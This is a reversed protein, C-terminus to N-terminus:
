TNLKPKLQKIQEAQNNPRNNITQFQKHNHQESNKEIKSDENSFATYSIWAFFIYFLIRLSTPM